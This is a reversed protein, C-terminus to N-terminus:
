DELIGLPDHEPVREGMKSYGIFVAGEDMMIADCEINGKIRGTTKIHLLDACKVDGTISGSVHAVSAETNGTIQGSKELMLEGNININGHYEGEIRVTGAGQLTAATIRIGKGILTVTQDESRKKKM